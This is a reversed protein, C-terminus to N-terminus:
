FGLRECSQPSVSIRIRPHPENPVPTQVHTVKMFARNTETSAVAPEGAGCSSLAAIICDRAEAFRCANAVALLILAAGVGGLGLFAVLESRSTSSDYGPLRKM